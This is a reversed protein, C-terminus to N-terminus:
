KLRIWEARRKEFVTYYDFGCETLVEYARDFDSAINQTNHSDSGVTIIEGGLQRYRKLVGTCPHVDRMGKRLGGTNLEIGKGQTILFELLPDFIDRYKEYCYNRDMNAGYRVAYDLHGCVDFNTFKKVNELICEFYERYAEEEPRNEHYPPYYPDKGHCIHVSGIIFDFDCSKAYVANQRLVQPQLGLEVGFLIRIKDAYKERYQILDYLYSDTNLLFLSGPAGPYDPFEFDNHETFCMTKLGKAIGALIMEEMPTDSDGSHSSHLHCDTLISQM